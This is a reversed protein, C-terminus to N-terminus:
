FERWSLRDDMEQDHAQRYAPCIVDTWSKGRSRVFYGVYRRNHWLHVGFNGTAPDSADLHHLVCNLERCGPSAYSDWARSPYAHAEALPPQKPSTVTKPM